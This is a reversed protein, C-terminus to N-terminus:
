FIKQLFITNHMSTMRIIKITLTRRTHRLNM